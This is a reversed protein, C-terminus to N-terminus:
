PKPSNLPASVPVIVSGDPRVGYKAGLSQLIRRAEFTDAPALQTKYMQVTYSIERPPVDVVYPANFFPDDWMSYRYRGYGYPTYFPSYFSRDPYVVAQRPQQENIRNSPDNIVKFADFGQQVTVQAAHLLNIEEANSYPMNSPAKFSIRYLANNLAVQGFQGLQNFTRPQPPTTACGSIFVVCIAGLMVPRLRKLSLNQIINLFSKM